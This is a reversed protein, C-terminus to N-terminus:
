PDMGAPLIVGPSFSGASCFREGMGSCFTIAACCVGAIFFNSSEAVGDGPPPVVPVPSGVGWGDACVSEQELQRRVSSRLRSMAPAPAFRRLTVLPARISATASTSGIRKITQM